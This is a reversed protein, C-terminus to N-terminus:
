SDSPASQTALLPVEWTVLQVKNTKGQKRSAISQDPLLVAVAHHLGGVL